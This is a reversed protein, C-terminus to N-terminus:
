NRPLLQFSNIFEKYKVREQNTNYPYVVSLGMPIGNAIFVMGEHTMKINNYEEFVEGIIDSYVYEKAKFNQFNIYKESILIGDDRSVKEKISRDLWTHIEAKSLIKELSKYVFVNYQVSIDTFIKYDRINIINRGILEHEAPINPFFISFNYEGSVYKSFDEFDNKNLSIRISFIFIIIFLFIASLIIGLVFYFKKIKEKM